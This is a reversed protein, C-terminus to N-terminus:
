ALRREFSTELAHQRADGPKTKELELWASRGDLTLSAVQNDFYPGELFRWGIEPDPVKAL